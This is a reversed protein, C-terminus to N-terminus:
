KKLQKKHLQEMESYGLKNDKRYKEADIKLKEFYLMFAKGRKTEREDQIKNELAYWSNVVVGSFMSFFLNKSLFGKRFIWVTDCNEKEFDDLTLTKYILVGVQELDSRTIGTAKKFEMDTTKDSDKAGFNYDTKGNCYDRYWNYM